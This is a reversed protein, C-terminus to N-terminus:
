NNLFNCDLAIEKSVESGTSKKRSFSLNNVPYNNHQYLNENDM